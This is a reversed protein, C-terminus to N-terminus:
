TPQSGFVYLSAEGSRRVPDMGNFTFAHSVVRAGFSPEERFKKTLHQNTTQLLYCTVVTADSLDLKFMNGYVVRVRRRLGLVTIFVQCWLFRLPDIEIGVARAGYRRAATVIVRGDGCWLDYVVDDPGVEALQLMNHVTPMPTPVFPAGRITTWVVSVFLTLGVILLVGEM